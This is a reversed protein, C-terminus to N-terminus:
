RNQDRKIVFFLEDACQQLSHERRGQRLSHPPLDHDHVVAGCVARGPDHFLDGRGVGAHQPEDPLGAIPALAGGDTCGDLMGGALEGDNLVGVQFVIRAFVPAEQRRQQLAFGIGDIARAEHDRALASHEVEPM